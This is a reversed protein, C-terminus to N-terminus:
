WEAPRQYQRLLEANFSGRERAVLSQRPGGVCSLSRDLGSSGRHANAGLSAPRPLTGGPKHPSTQPPTVALSPVPMPFCQM